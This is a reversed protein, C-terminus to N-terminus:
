SHRHKSLWKGFNKLGEDLSINPCYGLMRRAKGIDAFTIPVDGPQDPAWIIKAKVGIVEELNRVLEILKVPFSNGLNFAEYKSGDYNIAAVIGNVIDGIYTYDRASSGDGFLTIEEGRLMKEAFKRIALDPRQRPGYVTFFRLVVVSINYLHAYTHALAEGAIKTAAYPSAPKLLPDTEAFPVKNNLGYVSSSSGFVFKKVGNDKAAEFLNLTGAVNTAQYLEPESLSPRVGARAALHVIAEPQWEKVLKSILEKDRIDGEVLRYFEDQLHQKVNERKLDPDYYDNFDDVCLVACGDALLRDVLHSGIFGAGGTVMVKNYFM